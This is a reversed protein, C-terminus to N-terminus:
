GSFLFGKQEFVGLLLFHIAKPIAELQLDM